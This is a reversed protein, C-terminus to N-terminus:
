TKGGTEVPKTEKAIIARLDRISCAGSGNLQRYVDGKPNLYTKDLVQEYGLLADLAMTCVEVLEVIRKDKDDILTM